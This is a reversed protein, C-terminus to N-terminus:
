DHWAVTMWERQHSRSLQWGMLLQRLTAFTKVLLPKTFLDALQLKTDIKKVVIDPGLESRFWHVKVDHFKSRSAHQGPELNALTLAGMNDEWVSTKFNTMCRAPIGSGHAVVKVLDRLPLVERMVSSLTCCEAMMTSLCIPEM